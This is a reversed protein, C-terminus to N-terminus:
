FNTLLRYVTQLSCDLASAIEKFNLGSKALEAAKEKRERARAEYVARSEVGGARRREILRRQKETESIIAKLNVEEGPTIELRDILTQNRFLYHRGRSAMRLVTCVHERIKKEPWTPCWERALEAIELWLPLGAEVLWSLFTSALFLPLDRMGDPNGETWGRLHALTRLDNLRSYNLSQVTFTHLERPKRQGRAAEKRERWQERSFPLVRAAFDEFGYTVPEQGPPPWLVRVVEGSKTNVTRELRLVTSASVCVPDAGFPRFQKSLFAECANWRPLAKSPVPPNFIYKVQLGRGSFLIISPQPWDQVTCTELLTQAQAEPTVGGYPEVRYTDLDAFAANLQLLSVVRRNRRKFQNPTLYTDRRTDVARLVDPLLAMRYSHQRAQGEGFKQLLSFYGPSGPNLYHFPELFEFSFQHPPPANEAQCIKGPPNYFEM